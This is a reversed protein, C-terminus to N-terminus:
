EKIEVGITKALEILYEKLPVKEYYTTYSSTIINPCVKLFELIDNIIKEAAEKKSQEAIDIVWRQWDNVEFVVKNEPVKQYGLVILAKAIERADSPWLFHEICGYQMDGAMENIKEEDLM